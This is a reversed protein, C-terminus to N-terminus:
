RRKGYKDFTKKLAAETLFLSGLLPIFQAACVAAGAAGVRDASEGMVPLMFAASAPLMVVGCALWVKGCYKHAFEWTDKNKMSMATRYGFASNIKGPAKKMFSSGLVAMALPLLLDMCLMFCWFGM